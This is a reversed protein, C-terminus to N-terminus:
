VFRRRKGLLVLDRLAEKSKARTWKKEFDPAQVIQAISALAQLHYNREDRTGILVFIANVQPAAKSFRLGEKCRALLIEFQNEGNIIIHPIAIYPSLATSSEAERDLLRKFIIDPNINLKDSLREALMRFFAKLEMKTDIDIVIAREIIRDFRDQVIEDRERIIEKLETELSHDTLEKATIREILHLLAYERVTRIRGYFWFVFLGGVILASTSLLAEHGIEYLLVCYGAIGLIQVWPYLPVLMKPQYNQLHSERLIIVALCTFIYTLILVSSAAKIIVDLKLFLASIMLIGTLIISYHPTKFRENIRGLFGPVLGDRSLAMPYRSAGMIGANTASTFALIAIVAFYLKGWPGFIIQAGDSVPMLTHELISNDLLGETIFINLLYIFSASTLALIMGLPLVRGPDKVEEALSAVKLLGGFSVFVFGAGAIIGSVGYPAFPEFNRVHVSPFGRVFYLILSALITMVLITQIMGAGKAGLLNITLFIICLTAAIVRVDIDVFLATFVAMGMLEFASKLALAVLTILGYVTGVAPGMSRTVYFYTGGAKPMASALEAQSLMGATALLGALLYSVLVAPGAKAHALGPLLFIGTSMIAGITIAYVNLLNLDKKLSM